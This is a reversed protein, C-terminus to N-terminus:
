YPKDVKWEVIDNDLVFYADDISTYVKSIRYRRRNYMVSQIVIVDQRSNFFIRIRQWTEDMYGVFLPKDFKSLIEATRQQVEYRAASVGEVGKNTLHGDLGVWFLQDEDISLGAARQKYDKIVELNPRPGKVNIQLRRPLSRNQMRLKRAKAALVRNPM